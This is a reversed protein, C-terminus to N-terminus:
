TTMVLVGTVRLVHYNAINEEVQKLMESHKLAVGRRVTPEFKYNGINILCLTTTLSRELPKVVGM